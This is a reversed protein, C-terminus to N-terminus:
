CSLGSCFAGSVVAKLLLVYKIRTILTPQQSRQLTLVFPQLLMLAAEHTIKEAEENECCSRLESVYLDALHLGFGIPNAADQAIFSRTLIKHSLQLTLKKDRCSKSGRLRTLSVISKYITCCLVPPPGAVAHWCAAPCM